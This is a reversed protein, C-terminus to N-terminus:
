RLVSATPCAVHFRGALGVSNLYDIVIKWARHIPVEDYAIGHEQCFARVVSRAKVLNPRAISPFLHHEIQYNLGGMAFTAAHGGQINRSTIVQRRLFDIKADAAIVPMGVHSVAFAAGLYVGTVALQVGVFVAALGPSLFIFALAPVVALRIVILPLEVGRRKMGPRSVLAVLSQAQLNLAEVVLLPYFWWGQREHLWFLIRNRPPKEAPYFHVVSPEIDPDKDVQNPTAHHRAHKDKWWALSIGGLGSGILLAVWDNAAGSRFIQRHAADHSFFILQTIVVGLAVAIAVQSWHDGIFAFAVWVGALALLLGAGRSAYYFYRREM